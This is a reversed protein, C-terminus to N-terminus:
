EPHYRVREGIKLYDYVPHAENTPTGEKHKRTKGQKDRFDTVYEVYYASGQQNNDHLTRLEKDVVTGDWSKQARAKAMSVLNFVLFLLSVAGGILLSSGDGNKISLLACVALPALILVLAFAKTGQRAKKVARKFSPHNKNTSFGPSVGNAASYHPHESSM